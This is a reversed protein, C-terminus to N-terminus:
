FLWETEKITSYSSWSQTYLLLSFVLIIINAVCTFDYGGALLILREAEVEELSGRGGCLRLAVSAQQQIRLQSSAESLLEQLLSM